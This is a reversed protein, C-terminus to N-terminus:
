PYHNRDWGNNGSSAVVFCGMSKAFKIADHLIPSYFNEGFSLNIIKINNLAAYVIASAINDSQGNGSFDFARLSILKSGFAIGTIGLNNNQEAVIVGSVLTGHGHEDFPIPDFHYWDGINTNYQNVFDFGIIDDIFGNGDDDVGNFDGYVGNISLTDSWPDFRGNKNLDEKPNIWLRNILDPHYFDIGTDVVGVLVDKGNAFVWAKEANITKLYWQNKYLPDNVVIKDSEIKYVFNESVNEIEPISHLVNILSDKLESNIIIKYYRSLENILKSQTDSLLSNNKTNENINLFKQYPININQSYNLQNIITTISQEQKLKIIIESNTQSLLNLSLILFCFLFFLIRKKIFNM